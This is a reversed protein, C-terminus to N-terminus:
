RTRQGCCLEVRLADPNSPCARPAGARLSTVTFNVLTVRSCLDPAFQAVPNRTVLFVLFKPNYDVDEGGLRILTRRGNKQLERNLVPNLVPDVHEADHVLLPLGFRVASALAKLFSADLFSTQTLRQDAYKAVLFRTAM